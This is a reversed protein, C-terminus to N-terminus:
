TPRSGIEGSPVVEFTAAYRVKWDKRRKNLPELGGYHWPWLERLCPDGEHVEELLEEVPSWGLETAIKSRIDLDVGTVLLHGYPRVLRVINRLCMEAVRPDMDCLLNNAVVIDQPELADVLGPDEADGVRWEIGEKIWPKVAAVNGRCYFMDSMETETLREFINTNSLERALSYVGTKGIEIAQASIDVANIVLKAQPWTSRIKWALSYVEAGTGCGLVTIKVGETANRGNMLRGILELQPRNRLFFTTSAQTRVGQIRALANLFIGYSLIPGFAVLSVPFGDLIKRNVRLYANIPSKGFIRARLLRKFWPDNVSYVFPVNDEVVDPNWRTLKDNGPFWRPRSLALLTMKGSYSYEIKPPVEVLMEPSVAYRQGGITFDGSGALIYYTRTIKSSIMFTDHGKQVEIYYIELDKQRLPGLTHCILGKFTTSRRLSHVYQM